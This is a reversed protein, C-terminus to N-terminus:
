YHCVGLWCEYGLCCFDTASFFTRPYGDTECAFRHHLDHLRFMSLRTLMYASMSTGTSCHEPTYLRSVIHYISRSMGETMAGVHATLALRPFPTNPTHLGWLLGLFLMGAGSAILQLGARHQTMIPLLTRIMPLLVRTLHPPITGPGEFMLGCLNQRAFPM